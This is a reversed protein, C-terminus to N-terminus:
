FFTRSREAFGTLSSFEMASGDDLIVRGSFFGCLQRRKQY